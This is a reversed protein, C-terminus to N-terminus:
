KSLYLIKVYLCANNVYYYSLTSCVLHMLCHLNTVFTSYYLTHFFASVLCDGHLCSAFELLLPNEFCQVCGTRVRNLM